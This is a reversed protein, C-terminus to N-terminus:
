YYTNSLNTPLTLEPHGNPIYLALAKCSGNGTHMYPFYIFM